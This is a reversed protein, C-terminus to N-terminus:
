DNVAFVGASFAFKNSCAFSFSIAAIFANDSAVSNVLFLVPAMAAFLVFAALVLVTLAVFALLVFLGSGVVVFVTAVVLLLAVLVFETAVFLLLAVLVLEIAALLTEFVLSFATLELETAEVFLLLLLVFEFPVFETVGLLSTALLAEVFGVLAFPFPVPASANAKFFLKFLGLSDLRNVKLGYISESAFVNFSWAASFIFAAKSCSL